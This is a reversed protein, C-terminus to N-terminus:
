FPITPGTKDLGVVGSISLVSHPLEVSFTYGVFVAEIGIRVTEDPFPALKNVIVSPLIASPNQGAGGHNAKAPQPSDRQCKQKMAIRTRMDGCRNM